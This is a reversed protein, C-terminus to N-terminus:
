ESEEKRGPESSSSETRRDWVLRRVQRPRLGIRGAEGLGQERTQIKIIKSERLAVEEEGLIYGPRGGDSFLIGMM